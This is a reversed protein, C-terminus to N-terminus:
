LGPVRGRAQAPVPGWTWRGKHYVAKCESCVSSERPKGKTKYPDHKRARVSRDRTERFPHHRCLLEKVEDHSLYRVLGARCPTWM